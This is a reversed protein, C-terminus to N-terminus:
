KFIEDFFLQLQAWSRRDATENYEVNPIGYQSADPNTFGHRAGSFTTMQWDVGAKELATQFQQVRESPIFSDANGHAVYISARISKAQEDNPPPLAGHFSAVGKLDAGTYAMQMVTSGGFCYGVAAVSAPDVRPHKRLEALGALARQQWAAQNSSIEKSWAGAEEPHATVKGPGYMDVAFAVYGLEALMRARQKAYDNLGWWEHVVLVGPRKGSVTDDWAVYGQLEQGGDHYRVTETQVAAGAATALMFVFLGSALTLSKM